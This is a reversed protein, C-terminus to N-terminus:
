QELVIKLDADSVDAINKIEVGYDKAQALLENKAAIFWPDTLTDSKNAAKIMSRYMSGEAPLIITFETGSGLVSQVLIEGHHMKVLEKVISLGLGTGGSQRTGSNDVRYFRNFIYPLHEESIGIGNDAFKITVDELLCSIYIDLKGGRVGYKIANGIINGFARSLSDPEAFIMPVKNLVYCNVTIEKEAAQISFRDILSRILPEVETLEVHSQRRNGDISSLLLLDGVLAEMRFADDRIKEVDQKIQAKDKEKIGWDLLSETYAKITTIPTKLEHSVNAVFEKRQKNLLEQQTFDQVVVVTNLLQKDQYNTKVALNVSKDNVTFTISKPNVQMLFLSKIGPVHGFLTLMDTLSSPEEHLSLLELASKNVFTCKGNKDFYIIGLHLGSFAALELSAEKDNTSSFDLFPLFHLFLQRLRKHRRLLLLFLILCVITFSLALGVVLLPDM